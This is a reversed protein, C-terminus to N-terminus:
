IKFAFSVPARPVLKNIIASSRYISPTNMMYHNTNDLIPYNIPRFVYAYMAIYLGVHSCMARCVCVYGYM